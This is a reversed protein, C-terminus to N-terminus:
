QHAFFRAYDPETSTRSNWVGPMPPMDKFRSILHFEGGFVKKYFDFAEECNGNSTLYPNVTAM